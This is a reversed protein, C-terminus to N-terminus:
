ARGVVAAVWVLGCVCVCLSESEVRPESGCFSPEFNSIHSDRQLPYIVKLRLITNGTPSLITRQVCFNLFITATNTQSSADLAPYVQASEPGRDTDM